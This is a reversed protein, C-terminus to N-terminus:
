NGNMCEQDKGERWDGMNESMSSIRENRLRHRVFHFIVPGIGIILTEGVDFGGDEKAYRVSGDYLRAIERVRGDGADTSM